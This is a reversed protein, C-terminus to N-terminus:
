MDERRRAEFFYLPIGSPHLFAIMDMLMRSESSIYQLQFTWTTNILREYARTRSHQTDNNFILRRDFNEYSAVFTNLTLVTSSVFGGILELALPLYGVTRTIQKAAARDSGQIQETSGDQILNLLFSEADQETFLPM